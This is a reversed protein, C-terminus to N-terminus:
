ESKALKIQEEFEEKTFEKQEVCHWINSADYIAFHDQLGHRDDFFRLFGDKVDFFEAEVTLTDGSEKFTIGYTNM